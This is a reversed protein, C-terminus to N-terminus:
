NCWTTSFPGCVKSATTSTLLFFNSDHFSTFPRSGIHYDTIGGQRQAPDDPLLLSMANDGPMLEYGVPYGLPSSPKGVHVLALRGISFVPM